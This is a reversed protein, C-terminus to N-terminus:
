AEGGKSATWAMRTQEESLELERAGICQRVLSAVNMEERNLEDTLENIQSRLKRIRFASREIDHLLNLM